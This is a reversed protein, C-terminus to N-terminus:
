CTRPITEETLSGGLSAPSEATPMVDLDFSVTWRISSGPRHPPSIKLWCRYDLATPTQKRWDASGETAADIKSARIEREPASRTRTVSFASRVM